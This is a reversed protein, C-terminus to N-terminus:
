INIWWRYLDSVREVLAHVHLSRGLRRSRSVHRGRRALVIQHWVARKTSLPLAKFNLPLGGTRFIRSFKASYDKEPRQKLCLFCFFNKSGIKENEREDRKRPPFVELGLAVESSRRRKMEQQQNCIRARKWKSKRLRSRNFGSPASSVPRHEEVPESESHGPRMSQKISM